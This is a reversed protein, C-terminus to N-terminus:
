TSASHGTARAGGTGFRAAAQPAAVRPNSLRHKTCGFAACLLEALHPSVYRERSIGAGPTRARRAVRSDYRRMLAAIADQCRTHGKAQTPGGATDVTTHGGGGQHIAAGWWDALTRARPTDLLGAGSPEHVFVVTAPTAPSAGPWRHTIVREQLEYVGTPQADLDPDVSGPVVRLRRRREQGVTVDYGTELLTRMGQRTRDDWGWNYGRGHTDQRAAEETRAQAVAAAAAGEADMRAEFDAVLPAFDPHRLDEEEYTEYSSRWTVLYWRSEQAIREREQPRTNYRRCDRCEWQAGEAPPDDTAPDAPPARGRRRAM